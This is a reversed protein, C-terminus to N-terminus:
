EKKNGKNGNNKGGKYIQKHINKIDVPSGVIELREELDLLTKKWNTELVEEYTITKHIEELKRELNRHFHYVNLDYKELTLPRSLCGLGELDIAYDSKEVRSLYEKEYTDIEKDLMARNLMLYGLQYLMDTNKESLLYELAFLAPNRKYWLRQFHMGEPINKLTVTNDLVITKKIDSLKEIANDSLGTKSGIDVNEYKKNECEGSLYPLSVNYFNALKIFTKYGMEKGNKDNEYDSLSTASIGIKCAVDAISLKELDRLDRLREGLSLASNKFM